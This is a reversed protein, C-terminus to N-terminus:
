RGDTDQGSTLGPRSPFAVPELLIANDSGDPAASAIRCMNCLAVIYPFADFGGPSVVPRGAPQSAIAPNAPVLGIVSKSPQSAFPGPRYRCTMEM